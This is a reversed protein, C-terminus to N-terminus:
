GVSLDLIQTSTRRVSPEQGCGGRGFLVPFAGLCGWEAMGMVFDIVCFGGSLPQEGPPGKEGLGCTHGFDGPFNWSRELCLWHRCGMGQAQAGSDGEQTKNSSM